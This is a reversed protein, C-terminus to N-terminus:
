TNNENDKNDIDDLIKNLLEEDKEQNVINVGEKLAMRWTNLFSTNLKIGYNTFLSKTLKEADGVLKLMIRLRSTSDKKLFEKVLETKRLFYHLQKDKKSKSIDGQCANCSCKYKAQQVDDDNMYTFVEPIYIRNLPVRRNSDTTDVNEIDLKHGYYIGTFIGTAGVAVLAEAFNGVNDVIVPKSVSLSNVLTMLGSLAYVSERESDFNDVSVIYGDVKESYDLYRSIVQKTEIPKDLISSAINVVVFIPKNWKKFKRNRITDAVFNFNILFDRSHVDSFYFYPAIVATVNNDIQFNICPEILKDLRYEADEFLKEIKSFPINFPLKKFFKQKSKKYQLRQTAPNIFLIECDEQYKEFVKRNQLVVNADIVVGKLGNADILSYDRVRPILLPLKALNKISM